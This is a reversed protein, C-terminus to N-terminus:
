NFGGMKQTEESTYFRPCKIYKWLIHQVLQFNELPCVCDKM